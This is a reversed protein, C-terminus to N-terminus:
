IHQIDLRSASAGCVDDFGAVFEIVHVDFVRGCLAVHAHVRLSYM